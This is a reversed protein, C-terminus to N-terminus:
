FIIIQHMVPEDGGAPSAPAQYQYVPKPQGNSWDYRTTNVNDDVITPQGNSWDYRAAYAFGFFLLIGILILITYKM